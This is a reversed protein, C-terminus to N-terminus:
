TRDRFEQMLDELANNYKTIIDDTERVINKGARKWFSKAESYERIFRACEFIQQTVKGVIDRMSEIKGLNDADTMFRYVDGLKKLLSLISKDREAQAIIIKCAASLVGLAMKVYPHVDAIKELVADAIKLPQIYTTEFNDVTDLGDPANVGASAASTTREGLVKM